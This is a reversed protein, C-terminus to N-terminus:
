NVIVGQVARFLHQLLFLSYDEVFTGIDTARCRRPSFQSRPPMSLRMRPSGEARARWALRCVPCEFAAARQAPRPPLSSIIFANSLTYSLGHPSSPYILTAAQTM